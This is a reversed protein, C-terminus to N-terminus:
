PMMLGPYAALELASKLGADGKLQRKRAKIARALAVLDLGSKRVRPFMATEEAEIHHRVYTGLVAVRADYHLDGPKMSRLQAVMTKATDHEVAAEDMLEDDDIATRVGPYFIEEEVKTHLELENCIRAVLSARPALGSRMRAYRSFLAAVSRHDATLIAIADETRPGPKRPSTTKRMSPPHKRDTMAAEM